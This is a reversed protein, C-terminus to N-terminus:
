IHKLAKNKWDDRAMEFLIEGDSRVGKRKWGATIYFREARTGPSTGLWVTKDTQKFYWGMMMDHLKRGIGSGDFGPQVFLAWINNGTIDAIAFGVIKDEVVCVWCNGCITIYQVCYVYSGIFLSLLVNETVSFRVKMLQPIDTIVAERFIM